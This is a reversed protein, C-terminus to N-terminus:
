RARLHARKGLHERMIRRVNDLDTPTAFARKPILRLLPGAARLYFADATEYASLVTEWSNRGFAQGDQQEFGEHSIRLRQQMQGPALHRMFQRAGLWASLPMFIWFCLLVLYPLLEWSPGYTLLSGFVLWGAWILAIAGFAVFLKNRLILWLRAKTVDGQTLEFSGEVADSM